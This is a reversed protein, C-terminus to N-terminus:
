TKGKREAAAYYSGYGGKGTQAALMDPIAALVPLGYSQLLEEESRIQDDLLDRIVVIGGSLLLGAMAGIMTFKSYSPSHRREPM